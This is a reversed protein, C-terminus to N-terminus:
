LPAEAKRDPGTVGPVDTQSLPYPPTGIHDPSPPKHRGNNPEPFVGLM